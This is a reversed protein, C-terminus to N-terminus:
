VTISGLWRALFIEDMKGTVHVRYRPTFLSRSILFPLSCLNMPDILNLWGISRWNEQGRPCNISSVMDFDIGFIYFLACIYLLYVVFISIISLFQLLSFRHLHSVQLLLGFSFLWNEVKDLPRESLYTLLAKTRWGGESWITDGLVENKDFSM